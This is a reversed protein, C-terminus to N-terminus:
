RASIVFSDIVTGELDYVTFEGQTPGLDGIIYHEIAQAKVNFWEPEFEDYLPAGAGGSVLHV